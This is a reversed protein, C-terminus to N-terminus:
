IQWRWKLRDTLRQWLLMSLNTEQSESGVVREKDDPVADSIEWHSNTEGVQLSRHPHQAKCGWEIQVGSNGYQSHIHIELVNAVLKQIDPTELHGWGSIVELFMVLVKSKTSIPLESFSSISVENDWIGLLLM